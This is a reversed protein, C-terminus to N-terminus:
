CNALQGPAGRPESIRKDEAMAHGPDRGGSTAAKPNKASCPRLPGLPLQSRSPQSHWFGANGAHQVSNRRKGPSPAPGRPQARAAPASLDPPIARHTPPSDRATAPLSNLCPPVPAAGPSHGPCSVEQSLARGAGRPITCKWVRRTCIPATCRGDAADLMQQQQVPSAELM